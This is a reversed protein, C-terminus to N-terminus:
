MLYTIRISMDKLIIYLHTVMYLCALGVGHVFVITFKYFIYFLQYIWVHTRGLIATGDRLM